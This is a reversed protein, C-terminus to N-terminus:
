ASGSCEPVRLLTVARNEYKLYYAHECVDLGLIPQNGSMLGAM